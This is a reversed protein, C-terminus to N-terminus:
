IQGPPLVGCRFCAASKYSLEATPVRIAKDIAYPKGRVKAFLTGRHENKELAAADNSLPAKRIQPVRQGTSNGRYREVRIRM